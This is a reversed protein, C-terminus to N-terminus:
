VDARLSALIENINKKILQALEEAIKLTAERVNKKFYNYYSYSQSLVWKIREEEPLQSVYRTANEVGAFKIWAITRWLIEEYDYGMRALSDMYDLSGHLMMAKIGEAGFEEHFLEAALEFSGISGRIWDHGIKYGKFFGGLDIIRDVDESVRNSLGLRGAWLRHVRWSPM